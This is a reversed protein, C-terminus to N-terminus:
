KELIKIAVNLRKITEKKGILSAILFGDISREKGSLSYRFPWLVEGVGVKDTYLYISNKLNEVTFTDLDKIIEVLRKLHILADKKSSKNHPIKEAEKNTSKFLYDYEKIKVADKMESFTHYREKLDKFIETTIKKRIISKLPYKKFLCFSLHKRFDIYSLKKIYQKNFWDLKKNDFTASRKQLKNIDFFDILQKMDKVEDKSQGKINDTEGIGLISLYNLLAESLYGSDIYNLISTDSKRKSLKGGDPSIILPLHTYRPITYGLAEILLIQRPTNSIHDDGRIVDTIEMDEDDVVVTLHYLPDSISRAIVFDGLETTDIKINGRITDKFEIIKKHNKFRVVKVFKKNNKKSKEKSVYAKGEEILRKLEKKYIETRKSQVFLADEFIGLAHMSDMANRFFKKKCRKTDTDEIRIFFKGGNKKAYLYNYLATRATGIHLPGTPSPAIRTNIKTNNKM